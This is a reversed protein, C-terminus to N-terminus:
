EDAGEYLVLEAIRAGSEVMVEDDAFLLAKDSEGGPEQLGAFITGGLRALIETPYLVGIHNEPVEYEEEFEVVYTLSDGLSYFQRDRNRPAVGHERLLRDEQQQGQKKYGPRSNSSVESLDSGYSEGDAVVGGGQNRYVEGLTLEVSHKGVADDNIADKLVSENLFTGSRLGM